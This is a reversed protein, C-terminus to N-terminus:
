AKFLLLLREAKHTTIERVQVMDPCAMLLPQIMHNMDGGAMKVPCVDEIAYVGGPVLFPWLTLALHVQEMPEHIADDCIFEFRPTGWDKLARGLEIPNYADCLATKIRAQDNFIFRGDNDIGHITAKPFYDKWMFLSAGVVNNPIDRYGCIGIELVNRVQDPGMNDLVQQYAPTYGWGGNEQAGKDTGYKKALDCLATM